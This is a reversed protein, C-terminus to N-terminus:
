DVLITVSPPLKGRIYDLDQQSYRNGRLDLTKLNKLNGLENPLGTLQNYSLDLIRLEQLQGIEAPVGTMQNHSADLVRLDALNRIEAQISGTLRNYSVDLEETGIQSFVSFPISDLARNSLNLTKGGPLATTAPPVTGGPMDSVPLFGTRQAMFGGVLVVLVLGVIILIKNM